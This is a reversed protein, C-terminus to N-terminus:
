GEVCTVEEDKYYQAQVEFMEAYAGGDSLLQEHTGYEVMEGAKFMAIADCFRTSSLRHSIYVATKNGIIEDFSKYLRYEALADLAATPEDLVIVPSDKYLARAIAIKQQEGGSPEIGNEDFAKFLNTATGKEM